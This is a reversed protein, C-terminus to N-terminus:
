IGRIQGRTHGRNNLCSHSCNYCKVCLDRNVQNDPSIGSICDTYCQGCGMCNDVLKIKLLSIQNFAGYVLGLPCLTKCFPRKYIFALLLIAAGCYIVVDNLVTIGRMSFFKLKHEIYILIVIIVLSIFIVPRLPYIYIQYRKGM